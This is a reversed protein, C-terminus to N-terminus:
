MISALLLRKVNSMVNTRCLGSMFKERKENFEVRLKKQKAENSMSEVCTEQDRLSVKVCKRNKQECTSAGACCSRRLVLFGSEVAIWERTKRVIWGPRVYM